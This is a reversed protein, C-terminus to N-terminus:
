TPKREAWFAALAADCRRAIEPAVDTHEADEESFPGIIVRCTLCAVALWGFGSGYDSWLRVPGHVHQVDSTSCLRYRDEDTEGRWEALLADYSEFISSCAIDSTGNYLYWGIIAGDPVSHVCGWAKSM